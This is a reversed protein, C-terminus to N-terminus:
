LLNLEIIYEMDLVIRLLIVICENILIICVICYVPMQMHTHM